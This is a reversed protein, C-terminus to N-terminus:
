KEWVEGNSMQDGKVAAVVAVVVVMVVVIVAMVAVVAGVVSFWKSVATVLASRRGAVYADCM